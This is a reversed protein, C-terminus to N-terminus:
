RVRMIRLFALFVPSFSIKLVLLTAFVISATGTYSKLATPKSELDVQNSTDGQPRYIDTIFSQLSSKLFFFFFGM